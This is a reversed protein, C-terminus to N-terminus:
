ADLKLNFRQLCATIHQYLRRFLDFLLCMTSRLDNWSICVQGTVTAQVIHRSFSVKNFEWWWREREAHSYNSTTRDNEILLYTQVLQPHTWWFIKLGYLYSSLDTKLSMGIFGRTIMACMCKNESERTINIFSRVDAIRDKKREVYLLYVRFM